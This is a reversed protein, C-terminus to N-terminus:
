SLPKTNSCEIIKGNVNFKYFDEKNLVTSDKENYILYSEMSKVNGKLEHKELDTKNYDGRFTQGIVSESAIMFMILLILKM